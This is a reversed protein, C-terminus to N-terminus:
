AEYKNTRWSALIRIFNFALPLPFLVQALFNFPYQFLLFLLAPITELIIMRVPHENSYNTTRHCFSGENTDERKRCHSVIITPLSWAVMFVVSELIMLWIELEASGQM